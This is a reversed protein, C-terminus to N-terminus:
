YIVTCGLARTRPSGVAASSADPDYVAATRASIHELHDALDYAPDTLGGDEFDVLRCREGDWIINAPNLDSIGLGVLRTGPSNLRSPLASLRASM